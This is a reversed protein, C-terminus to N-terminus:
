RMEKDDSALKGFTICNPLINEDGRCLQLGWFGKNDIKPLAKPCFFRRM